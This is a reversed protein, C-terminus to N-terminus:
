KRGRKKPAAAPDHAEMYLPAGYYAKIRGTTPNVGIYTHFRGSRRGKVVNIKVESQGVKPDTELVIGIHAAQGWEGAGKAPVMGPAAGFKITDNALQALEIMGVRYRGAFARLRKAARAIDAYDEGELQGVYDIICHTTGYLHKDVALVALANDLKYINDDSEGDYVRLRDSLAAFWQLAAGLRPVWRREEGRFFAEGGVMYREIRWPEIDFKAAMLNCAVASEDDELNIWAVSAGQDLLAVAWNSVVRTKGVGYQAVLVAVEGQALAGRGPNGDPGIGEFADDLDNPDVCVRWRIKPPATRVREIIHKATTEKVLSQREYEDVLKRVEAVAEEDVAVREAARAFKASYARQRADKTLQAKLAILASLEVDEPEPVLLLVREVEQPDIEVPLEALAAMLPGPRAYAPGRQQLIKIIARTTPNTLESPAPAAAMLFEPRALLQAVLTLESPPATEEVLFLDDTM